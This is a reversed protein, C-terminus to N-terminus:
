LELYLKETADIMRAFDYQQAAEQNKRGAASRKENDGLLECIAGALKLANGIPVLVQGKLLEKAGETETSAVACGSAMAELIALGFSESHSASVFVDLAHLLPATDEVRDLWLINM